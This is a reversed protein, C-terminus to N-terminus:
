TTEEKVEVKDKDTTINLNVQPIQQPSSTPAHQYDPQPIPTKSWPLKRETVLSYVFIGGFFGAVLGIWGIYQQILPNAQIAAVGGTLLASVPVIINAHTWADLPPYVKSVVIYTVVVALLILVFWAKKSWGKKESM